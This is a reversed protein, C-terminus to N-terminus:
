RREITVFVERGERLVSLNIERDVEWSERLRRQADNIDTSADRGEITRLVDGRMVGARSAASGEDVYAVFIRGDYSAGLDIGYDTGSLGRPGGAVQGDAAGSREEYDELTAFIASGRPNDRLWRTLPYTRSLPRRMLEDVVFDHSPNYARWLEDATARDLRSRGWLEGLVTYTVWNVLSEIEFSEATMFPHEYAPDLRAGPALPPDDLLYHVLQHALLLVRVDEDQPVQASGGPGQIQDLALVLPHEISVVPWYRVLYVEISRYPWALGTVDAARVLYLPGQRYSWDQLDDDHGRVWDVDDELAGPDRQYREPYAVQLLEESADRLHLAPVMAGTQGAAPAALALATLGFLLSKM